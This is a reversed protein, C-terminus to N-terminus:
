FPSAPAAAPLHTGGMIYDRLTKAANIKDFETTRDAGYVQIAMPPGGKIGATTAVINQYDPAIARRQAQVYRDWETAQRAGGSVTTLDAAPISALEQITRTM